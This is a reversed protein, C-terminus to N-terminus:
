LTQLIKICPKLYKNIDMIEALMAKAYEYDTLQLGDRRSEKANAFFVMSSFVLTFSLIVSLIKKM